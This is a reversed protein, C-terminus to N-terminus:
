KRPCPKSIKWEKSSNKDLVMNATGGILYDVTVELEDAIKKAMEISPKIEGREYRGSIPASTGVNKALDDQSLKLQKRQLAIREGFTM